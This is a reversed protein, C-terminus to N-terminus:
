EEYFVWRRSLRFNFITLLVIVIFIIYSIAAAIGMKQIRWANIYLYMVIMMTANAPGGLTMVFPIDFVTFCGIVSTVLVFFTIPSLLPLTIYFMKQLPNAGDIEAAEYYDKSIGQMGSLFIVINLGLGGWIAIIIISILAWHTSGLWSPGQIGIMRLVSNLVGFNAEYIWQWLLAIAVTPAIVPIFYLARYITRGRINQNLMSAFVIALIIGPIVTGLGYLITNSMAKFFVRDATFLEIFNRFGVFKAPTLLNWQTFSIVLSFITPYVQFIIIGLVLPSIFLWAFLEEKKQLQSRKPKSQTITM